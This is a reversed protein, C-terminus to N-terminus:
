TRPRYNRAFWKRLLLFLVAWVAAFLAVPALTGLIQQASGPGDQSSAINPDDNQNQLKLTLSPTWHSQVERMVAFKVAFKGGADVDQM